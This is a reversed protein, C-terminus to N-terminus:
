VANAFVASNKLLRSASTGAGGQGGGAGAAGAGAAGSGAGGAGGGQALVVGIPLIVLLAFAITTPNNRLTNIENATAWAEVQVILENPMRMTVLPDKGKAPRGRAKKPTESVPM